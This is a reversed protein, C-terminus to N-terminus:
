GGLRWEEVERCEKGSEVRWKGRWEGRREEDVRREAEVTLIIYTYTGRESVNYIRIMYM